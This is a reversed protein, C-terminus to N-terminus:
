FAWLWPPFESLAICTGLFIPVGYPVGEGPILVRPLSDPPPGIHSSRLLPILRRLVLLGVIVLLGAVSIWFVLPVLAGMGGWLAIAGLLKVDGAGMQGMSYFVIGCVFLIAGALFHDLWDIDASGALSAAAFGLLLAIVIVNPIRYSAADSGAAALLAIVFFTKTLSFDSIVDM